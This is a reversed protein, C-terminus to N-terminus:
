PSDVMRPRVTGVVSFSVAGRREANDREEQGQTDREASVRNTAVEPSERSPRRVVVASVATQEKRPPEPKPMGWWFGLLALVVMTGVLLKKM